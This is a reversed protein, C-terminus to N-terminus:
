ELLELIQRARHGYTHNGLVMEYANEKAEEVDIQYLGPRKEFMICNIGHRFGLENYYKRAEESEVHIVILGKCAPIEMIRRSGYIASQTFFLFAESREVYDKYEDWFVYKGGNVRTYALFVRERDFYQRFLHNWLYDRRDDMADEYISVYNLGDLDKERNPNFMEPDVAYPLDIRKTSHWLKPYYHKIFSDHLPMNYALISPNMCSPYSAFERHYYLVETSGLKPNNYTFNQHSIIIMDYNEVPLIERLDIPNKETLHYKSKFTSVCYRKAIDNNTIIYVSHGLNKLAKGMRQSFTNIHEGGIIAFKVQFEEM